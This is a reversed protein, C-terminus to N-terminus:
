RLRQYNYGGNKILAAMSAGLSPTVGQKWTHWANSGSTKPAVAGRSFVDFIFPPVKDYSYIPGNQQPHEGQFKVFLRGSKPDYKFANIQSSAYPAKDLDDGQGGGTIGGTGVDGGTIRGSEEIAQLINQLLGSVAQQTEANLQAGNTELYEILSSAYEVLEDM